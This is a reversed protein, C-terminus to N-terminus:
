CGVWIGQSFVGPSVIPVDILEIDESEIVTGRGQLVKANTETGTSSSSVLAKEFKGNKVDRMTDFLLSM